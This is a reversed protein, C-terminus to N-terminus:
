STTKAMNPTRFTRIDLGAIKSRSTPSKGNQHTLSDIQTVTSTPVVNSHNTWGGHDSGKERSARLNQLFPCGERQQGHTNPSELTPAPSLPGVLNASSWPPRQTTAVAGPQTVSKQMVGVQKRHTENIEQRTLVNNSTHRQRLTRGCQLKKALGGHSGVNELSERVNNLFPCSWCQQGPIPSKPTQAHPNTSGHQSKHQPAVIHHGCRWTPLFRKCSLTKHETHEHIETRTLM